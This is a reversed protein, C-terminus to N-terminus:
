NKIVTEEVCKSVIEKFLLDEMERDTEKLKKYIIKFLLSDVTFFSNKKKM